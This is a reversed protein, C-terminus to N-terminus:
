RDTPDLPDLGLHIETSDSIGDGDTDPNFPDTGLRSEREDSLQDGDSDTMAGDGPVSLGDFPDSGAALETGDGYGDNDADTYVPDPDEGDLLGDGDSDPSLPDSPRLSHIEDGDLRFDGDTDPNFPDTGWTAEEDDTLGDDDADGIGTKDAPVNVLFAYRCTAEGGCGGLDLDAVTVVLPAYGAAPAYGDPLGSLESLTLTADSSALLHASNVGISNPESFLPSEPLAVGDAEVEISV